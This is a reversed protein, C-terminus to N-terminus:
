KSENNMQTKKKKKYEDFTINSYNKVYDNLENLNKRKETEIEASIKKVLEIQAEINKVATQNYNIKNKVMGLIEFQIMEQLESNLKQFETNSNLTEKTFDDCEKLTKDLMSVYDKAYNQNNQSNMQQMMNYQRVMENFQDDTNRYQNNSFLLPDSNLYFNNSAMEKLLNTNASFLFLM